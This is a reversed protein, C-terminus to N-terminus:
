PLGAILKSIRRGVLSKFPLNLQRRTAEALDQGYVSGDHLIAIKADAWREALYEGALRAQESNRKVVWFVNRFGQETLKPNTASPSIM